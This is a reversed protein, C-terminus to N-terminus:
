KMFSKAIVMIVCFIVFWVAIGLWFPALVWIWPWSIVGVLKLTIFILGLLGVVGIGGNSGNNDSSM